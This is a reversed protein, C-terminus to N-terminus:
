EDGGRKVKVTRSEAELAGLMDIYVAPQEGYSGPYRLGFNKWETWYNIM